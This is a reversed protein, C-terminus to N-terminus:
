RIKIAGKPPKAKDNRFLTLFYNKGGDGTRKLAARYWVKDMLLYVMRSDGVQYVDGRDIIEQAKRYDDVTIEPHKAIHEDISQRSLLVTNSDSGLLLRDTDNLAAIPFEGALKGSFFSVFAGSNVLYQTNARAFEAAMGEQKEVVKRLLAANAQGPAYDWGYDVGNPLEHIVGHRDIKTYTGDDPAPHGKYENATVAKIRCRCGFGNPTFHTKWWPHDYRLVTGHWSQHLPRPHAVLDSHIYKWYPRNQLLDPDTLQAYRGANYSTRMNADYIVRTRWDRGAQTDSGTWGQWGHKAVIADFEQRFWKISKGEAISKDVAGRLDNLLDAKAAGAVMFARDHASGIIDDWHETPLNEKQRFFAVQEAFPKNFKGDGRANFALQTPSLQLGM